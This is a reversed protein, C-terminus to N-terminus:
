EFHAYIDFLDACTEAGYKKSIAMNGSDSKLQQRLDSLWGRMFAKFGETSIEWDRVKTHADAEVATLHGNIMNIFWESRKDYEDFHQDIEVEANLAIGIATKDKYVIECNFVGQGDDKVRKVVARLKEQYKEIVDPGLMMGLDVFFGPLMRRCLDDPGLHDGDKFLGSFKKVMLRGFPSHRQQDFNSREQAKVYAGFSRELAGSLAQTQRDFEAQMDEMDQVTLHGGKAKAAAKMQEVFGQVMTTALADSAGKATSM